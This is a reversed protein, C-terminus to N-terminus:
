VQQGLREVAKAYRALTEGPSPGNVAAHIGAAAEGHRHFESHTLVVKTQGPEAETFAFTIFSAKEDSFIPQWNAGVRWTMVVRDPPSWETIVGHVAEKGAPNREFFRGGIGPEIAVLTADDLFMHGPPVWEMPQETFIRFAEAPPVSVTVTKTIDGLETGASQHDSM